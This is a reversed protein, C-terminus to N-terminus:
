VATSQQERVKISFLKEGGSLGKGCVAYRTIIEASLLALMKIGDPSVWSPVTERESFGLHAATGRGLYRRIECEKKSCM